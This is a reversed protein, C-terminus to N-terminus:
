SLAWAFNFVTLAICVALTAEGVGDLEDKQSLGTLSILGFVLANVAYLM